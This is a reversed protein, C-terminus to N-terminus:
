PLRWAGTAPSRPPLPTFGTRPLRLPRSSARTSGRDRAIRNRIEQAELALATWEDDSRCPRFAAPNKLVWRDNHVLRSKGRVLTVREGDETVILEEIPTVQRRGDLVRVARIMDATEYRERM